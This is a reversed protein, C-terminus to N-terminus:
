RRWDIAKCEPLEAIYEGWGTRGFAAVFLNSGTRTRSQFFSMVYM